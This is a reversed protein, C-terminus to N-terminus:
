GPKRQIIKSVALLLTVPNFPKLIWANVGLEKGAAKLKENSETTLVFIFFGFKGQTQKAKTLMQIGDLGPMNYDTIVLELARNSLITNLGDTGNTAEVVTHQGSELVQKLHSRIANSDDVILITSM